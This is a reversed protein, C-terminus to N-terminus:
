AAVGADRLGLAQALRARRPGSQEALVMASMPEFVEPPLGARAGLLLAELEAPNLGRAMWQLYFASEEPSLTARLAGELAQIEADSFHEWLALTLVTEEEAMHQLNEGVFQGFQLYLAYSLAEGDVGADRVRQLQLRLAGIAQLHEVHDNEFALVARPARQRLPEHFFRNEHALHDCCVSLAREVTDVMAAREVGDRVDCTGAQQLADALLERLAKHILRYPQERRGTTAQQLAEHSSIPTSM